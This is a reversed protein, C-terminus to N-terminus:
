LWSALPSALTDHDSVTTQSLLKKSELREGTHKNVNKIEWNRGSGFAFSVDIIENGHMHHYVPLKSAWM